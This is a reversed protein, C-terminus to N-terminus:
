KKEKKQKSCKKNRKSKFLDPFIIRFKKLLGLSVASSKDATIFIPHGLKEKDLKEKVLEWRKLVDLHHYISARSLKTERALDEKSLPELKELTSLILARSPSFLAIERVM